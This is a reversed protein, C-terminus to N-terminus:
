SHDALPAGAAPMERPLMRYLTEADLSTTVPRDGAPSERLFGAALEAFLRAKAVDFTAPNAELTVEDLGQLDLREALGVFLKRLHTPSLMSPTGGGLYLTRPREPLEAIRVRAEELLADVFEGIPTDGPTHKYFSCYPCVRHCFPIHLYLLM